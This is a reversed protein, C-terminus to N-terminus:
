YGAKELIKKVSQYAPSTAPIDLLSKGEINYEYIQPDGEVRGLFTFPQKEAEKELNEPFRYGGVIYYEDFQIDVEKM